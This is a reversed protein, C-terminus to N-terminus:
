NVIPCLLQQLDVQVRDPEAIAHHDVDVHDPMAHQDEEVRDPKAHQVEEVHDPKAHLDVEVHDPKARSLDYRMIPSQVEHDVELYM